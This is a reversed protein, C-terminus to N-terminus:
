LVRVFLDDSFPVEAQADILAISGGSAWGM